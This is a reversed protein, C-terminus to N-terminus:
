EHNGLLFQYASKTEKTGGVHEVL